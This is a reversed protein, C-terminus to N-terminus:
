NEYLGRDITMPRKDEALAAHYVRAVIECAARWSWRKAMETGNAGLVDRHELCYALGASLDDWDGPKAMYGNTGHQVMERAGGHDFALVPVGSAMAEVCGIGWTEKATALYVGARQVMQKMQAFPVRGTVAVNQPRNAPAFTSIFKISPFRSALIAVPTPDCVDSGARNKNWLVYGDSDHHHVWDQWDIGHPVVTPSLRMDRQLTEAVWASPVTVQKAQRLCEVITRNSEWEWEAAAYDNTWYLGHLMCVDCIEVGAHAVKIDYDEGEHVFEIGYEPLYKQYAEVVRSIGDTGPRTPFSPIMLVKM